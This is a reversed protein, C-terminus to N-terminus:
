MCLCVVDFTFVHFEALSTQRQAQNSTTKIHAYQDINQNSKLTFFLICWDYPNM